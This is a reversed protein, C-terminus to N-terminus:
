KSLLYKMIQYQLRYNAFSEEPKVLLSSEDKKVVAHCFGAVSDRLSDGIPIKRKPYLNHKLFYVEDRTSKDKELVRYVYFDGFGFDLSKHATDRGKGLWFTVHSTGGDYDFMLKLFCTTRYCWGSIKEQNITGKHDIAVLFSLVHPLLDMPVNLGEGFGSTFDRADFRKNKHSGKIEHYFGIYTRFTSVLQTNATFILRERYAFEFLNETLTLNEEPPKRLDWYVPKECLVHAGNQLAMIAHNYHMEPPTGVVVIDPKVEKLMRELDSYPAVEIGFDKKLASAALKASEESSGLVSAVEIGSRHFEKAHYYGISAAREETKPRAGLIAVKVGMVLALYLHKKFTAM